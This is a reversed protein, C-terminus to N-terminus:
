CSDILLLSSNLGSVWDEQKPVGEAPPLEGVEDREEGWFTPRRRPAPTVPLSPREIETPFDTLKMSPRRPPDEAPPSLEGESSEPVSPHIVQIKGKRAQSLAQLYRDIAPLDDWANSRSFAQWPDSGPLKTTPTSPSDEASTSTKEIVAPPAHPSAGSPEPSSPTEDLFVRTAKLAKTEWPFIPAPKQAALPTPPVQYWMDKPAEPYNRPPQFLQTDQSM